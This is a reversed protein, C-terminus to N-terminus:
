GYIILTRKPKVLVRLRRTRCSRPLKKVEEKNVNQPTFYVCMFHAAAASCCKEKLVEKICRARPEVMMVM